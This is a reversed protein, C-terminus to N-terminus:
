CAKRKCRFQNPPIHRVKESLKFVQLYDKEKVEMTDIMDWLLIQLELPVENAVGRTIYRKNNFM